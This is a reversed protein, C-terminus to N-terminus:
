KRFRRLVAQVSGMYGGGFLNVHVMLPYLNAVEIGEHWGKEMPWAAQYAEYFAPAFGGFLKTMGLDMYRHGYYVAPDVIAPLGDSGALYNGSWLDGHLLAPHEAPFFDGLHPILDEFRKGLERDARGSDRALKLQPELREAAFFDTWSAHQRNSQPLSGIYNAHDLGFLEHRCRHMAALGRGFVEWFDKRMSGQELYALVLLSHRDDTGHAIVEPVGIRALQDQGPRDHSDHHDAMSGEEPEEDHRGAPRSKPLKETCSSLLRLGKAESEFMGPYRKVDNYKVFFVGATSEVRFADNICGGGLPSAKGLSVAQSFKESLITSLTTKLSESLM